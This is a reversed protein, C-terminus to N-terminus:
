PTKCVFNGAEDTSGTGKYEALQPYACLPRTRDVKGGRFRSATMRAPARGQEAWEDLAALADFSSPGDGGACHGVGPAMFLRVADRVQAAGVTAVVSDYYNITNRPALLQDSWGHYLLLKGGRKVFPRLDPDTTNITNQDLRDALAIHADFDLSTYRWAPDKFVLFKFHSVYVGLPAPPGAILMWGREGGPELGPYIQNGTRPNRPGAYIQRAAQLQPATLCGPADEGTCALTGPDFRCRRPDELVGDKVGDLADCANLVADQMVAFKAPPISSAPDKHTAQAMWVGSAMLHTWANGPAGAVIADYDLPYRQAEKLGQKGGSSCGLWYARRAATGYHAAIVAKSKVTMEHVARYGFDIVKEPHGLAFSADMGDGEHGTDTNATAYGQALAEAMAPHWIQGSWVGNGVAQFKGNWGNLPMWVEFKIDSDPTPKITGAVRCFAPLRSYAGPPVGPENFPKEPVFAGAPVSVALTITTDPLKLSALRDCPEAATLTLDIGAAAAVITATLALTLLSRTVIM